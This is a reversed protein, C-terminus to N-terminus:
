QQFKKLDAVLRGFENVGITMNGSSDYKRLIQLAEVQTTELGLKALAPRLENADLQGSGNTDFLDFAQQM